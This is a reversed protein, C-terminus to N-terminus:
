PMYLHHSWTTISRRPEYRKSVFSFYSVFSIDGSDTAAWLQM